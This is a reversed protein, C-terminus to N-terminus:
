PNVGSEGAVFIQASEVRPSLHGHTGARIKDARTSFQAAAFRAVEYGLQRYSRFITERGRRQARESKEEEERRERWPEAMSCDGQISLESVRMQRHFRVVFDDVKVRVSGSLERSSARSIADEFTRM